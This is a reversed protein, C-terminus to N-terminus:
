CAKLLLAGRQVNPIGSSKVMRGLTRLTTTGTITLPTEGALTVGYRPVIEPYPM